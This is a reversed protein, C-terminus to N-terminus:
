RDQLGLNGVQMSFTHGLSDIGQSISLDPVSLEPLCEAVEDNVFIEIILDHLVLSPRCSVELGEVAFLVEKLRFKCLQSIFEEELTLM